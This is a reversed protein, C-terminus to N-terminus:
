YVPSYNICHVFRYDFTFSYEKEEGSAKLITTAGNMVVVCDSNAQKERDNFPRCRVAVKVIYGIHILIV